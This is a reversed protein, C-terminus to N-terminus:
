LQNKQIQEEWIKHLAAEGFATAVKARLKQAKRKEEDVKNPRTCRPLAQHFLKALAEGLM